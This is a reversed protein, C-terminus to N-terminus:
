APNRVRPLCVNVVTGAGSSEIGIRGKHRDVIIRRSIDLGLGTGKGVEKTTFFPEFARARVEPSMGRGTDGVEVVVVDDDARTSIRLTGNGDMADIANDILNTWVQNLEGPNAEIRPIDAGYDRVVTVGDRLKHALMLLTSEIGDTVDILQLSARDVQSYSKVAGVLATIRTTSEKVESLLARASVTSAVWELAPELTGDALADRARECWAVDVGAAALPPAIRWGAEVGNEDLWSLLEEERDSAALSDVAQPTADIERRLEDLEVFADASMSQEALRVLSSLMTEYSDRLEDVARATASAPNNIEHALGAALTGLAILNERQRSLTDMRRVTQFFGEILHVGFPFWRRVCEGLAVSPMRLMRGSKSGRGTALYTSEKDWAHFGGAWIGPREATMLVVPEERGAQRVLDVSGDILVWWFDAPAGEHFLESGEDFRVEEGVDLLETLQADSLGDFIFLDRVDALEIM